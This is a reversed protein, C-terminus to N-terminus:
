RSGALAGDPGVTVAADGFDQRGVDSVLMAAAGAPDRRPIGAGDLVLSSLRGRRFAGDPEVTVRLVGSLAMTGRSSFTHFGALNGLSYAILRDEYREIGRLVHPGSGLVLDAGADVAAHAFARVNGRPEGLFVEDADPTREQGAGEAGAHVFAVVVDASGAAARILAQAGALDRLDNTWPYASFGVSAVRVGGVESLHVQGPRGTAGVGAAALAAATEDLAVPGYDNAHNNALNVVDVGARRLTAANEPPARFAFCNAGPEIGCKSAGSVALTGEYNLAALDAGQLLRRVAALLPRGRDPPLGHASGLTTDGAWAITIPGPREGARAAAKPGDAAGAAPPRGIVTTLVV